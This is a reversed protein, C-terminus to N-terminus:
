QSHRVENATGGNATGGWQSHGNATGMVGNATGMPQAGWQSHGIISIHGWQSHWQSHGPVDKATFEM